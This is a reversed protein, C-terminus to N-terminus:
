FPRNYGCADYIWCSRTRTYTVMVYGARPNPKRVQLSYCRWQGAGPYQWTNTQWTNTVWRWQQTFSLITHAVLLCDCVCRGGIHVDCELLSVIVPLLTLLLVRGDVPLVIRLRLCVASRILSIMLFYKKVLCVYARPFHSHIKLQNSFPPSM